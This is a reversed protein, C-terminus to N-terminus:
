IRWYSAVTKLHFDLTSLSSCAQSEWLPGSCETLDWVELHKYISKGSNLIGGEKSGGSHIVRIKGAFVMSKHFLLLPVFYKTKWVLLLNKYYWVKLAEWSVSSQLTIYWIISLGLISFSHQKRMALTQTLYMGCQIISILCPTPIRSSGLSSVLM